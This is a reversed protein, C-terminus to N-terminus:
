KMGGGSSDPQVVSETGTVGRIQIRIPTFDGENVRVIASHERCTGNALFTDITVWDDSGATEADDSASELEVSTKEFRIEVAKTSATMEDAVPLQSFEPVDPALRLRKGDSSLALRYPMGESMALGRADNTTM